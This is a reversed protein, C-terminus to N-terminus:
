LGARGADKITQDTRQNETEAHELHAVLSRLAPWIAGSDWGASKASDIAAILAPELGEECELIYDPHERTFRPPQMM